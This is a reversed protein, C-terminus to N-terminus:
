STASVLTVCTISKARLCWCGSCHTISFFYSRGLPSRASSKGCDRVPGGGRARARWRAGGRTRWARAGAARGRRRGPRRRPSARRCRRDRCAAGCGRRTHRCRARSGRRRRALVRLRGGAELAHDLARHDVDLGGAALLHGARVHQDRDEGLALAVGGIEQLLLVHGAVIRDVVDGVADGLARAQGLRREARPASSSDLSRGVAAVLRVAPLLLLAVREVGIADVEVLLRLVALDIRQDAALRSTCRVIWTSQRRCFFLGSKTPSGPTPLVAIASPRARLITLPSTGSTSSSAVM